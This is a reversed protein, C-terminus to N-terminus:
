FSGISHHFHSEASSGSSYDDNTNTNEDSSCDGLPPLSALYERYERDKRLQEERLREERREKEEKLHAILRVAKFDKSNVIKLSIIDDLEKGLGYDSLAFFREATEPTLEMKSAASARVEDYERKNWVVNYLLQIDKVSDMGAIKWLRYRILLDTAYEHIKSVTLYLTYGFVLALIISTLNFAVFVVLKFLTYAFLGLILILLFEM